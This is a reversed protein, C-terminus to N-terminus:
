SEAEPQKKPRGRKAPAADTQPVPIGKGQLADGLQKIQLQMTAIANDRDQLEARMRLLPADEKAKTILDRAKERLVLYGHGLKQLNADTMGALQEVTRVKFYALEEVTSRTVAPWESLPTGTVADVNGSKWDNYQARFRRRLDDTVPKHIINSKDGPAAIEVYEVDKFIPRGEQTSAEADQRPEMSFRVFLQTDGATAHNRTMGPASNWSEDAFEPM